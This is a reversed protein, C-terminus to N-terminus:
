AKETNRLQMLSLGEPSKYKSNMGSVTRSPKLGQKGMILEKEDNLSVSPFM